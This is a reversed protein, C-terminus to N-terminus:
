SVEGRQPQSKPSLIQIAWHGNRTGPRVACLTRNGWVLRAPEGKFGELVVVDGVKLDKLERLTLRGTALIVRLPVSLSAVPHQQLNQPVSITLHQLPQELGKLADARLAIWLNGKEQGIQFNYCLQYVAVKDALMSIQEESTWLNQLQVTQGDTEGTIVSLLSLAIREAFRLLLTAELRSLPRHQLSPPVTGPGGLLRDVAVMALNRSLALYHDGRLRGTTAIPIVFTNDKWQELLDTLSALGENQLRLELTMRLLPILVYRLSQALQDAWQHVLARQRPTLTLTAQLDYPQVSVGATIHSRRHRTVKEKSPQQQLLAQLEEPTLTQM